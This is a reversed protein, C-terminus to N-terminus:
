GVDGLGEGLSSCIEALRKWVRALGFQTEARRRAARSLQGACQRDEMLKLLAASAGRPDGAPTLLACAGGDTCERADPTASAIIPMGAAMAAAMTGPRSARRSLLVAVDAAALLDAQGFRDGTLLVDSAHGATRAFHRVTGECRGRGPIVLRVGPLIQRIVAHAWAALKHGDASTMDALSIVLREGPGVGMAARTRRRREALHDVPLSAPPLVHVISAAAGARILGQRASVTPVTVNLGGAGFRWPLSRLMQGGPCSPLTLLVQLGSGRAAAVAAVAAVPSWAHLRSARSVRRRMRRGCLTASGFPQHLAEVGAVPVDHRPLPGVSVIRDEPGALLALQGLCDPPTSRDIVHLVPPM